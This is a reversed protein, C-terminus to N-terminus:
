PNFKVRAVGKAFWVQGSELFWKNQSPFYVELEYSGDSNVYFQDVPSILFTEAFIFEREEYQIAKTDNPEFWWM